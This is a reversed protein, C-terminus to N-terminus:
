NGYCGDTVDCYLNFHPIYIAMNYLVHKVTHHKTITFSFIILIVERGSVSMKMSMINFDGCLLLAHKHQFKFPM